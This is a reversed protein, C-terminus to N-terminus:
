AGSRTRDRDAALLADIAPGVRELLAARPMSALPEIRVVYRGVAVGLLQTAALELAGLSWPVDADAETLRSALFERLMQAAQENTTASRFMATLPVASAPEEWLTLYAEVLRGGVGDEPQERLASLLVGPLDGPLELAATFLDSKTGFFHVVLAPDVGAGAAVGRITTAAFGLSAFQQRAVDLIAERTGSEGPRRGTRRRM